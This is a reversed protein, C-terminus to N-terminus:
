VAAEDKKMKLINIIIFDYTGTTMLTANGPKKSLLRRWITAESLCVPLAQRRIQRKRQIM